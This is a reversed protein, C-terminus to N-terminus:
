FAAIATGPHFAFAQLEPDRFAEEILCYSLSCHAPGKEVADDSEWRAAALTLRKVVM